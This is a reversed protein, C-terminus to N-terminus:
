CGECALVALLVVAVLSKHYVVDVIRYVVQGVIGAFDHVQVDYSVFIYLNGCAQFDGYSCDFCVNVPCFYDEFFLQLVVQTSKDFTLLFLNECFVISVSAFFVTQINDKYVYRPNEVTFTVLTKM